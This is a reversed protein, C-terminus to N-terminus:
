DDNEMQSKLAAFPRIRDGSDEEIAEPEHCVADDIHTAALPMAMVLAETVLDMPRFQDQEVEWVEYGADEVAAAQDGGFVLRLETVLPLQFPELCRQCVADVTVAVRGEVAPWLGTPHLGGHAAAFGFALQGYVTANRWDSPLKDPDLAELDSEVIAALQEFDGIKESFEILQGRAALESPTRRDRLPNGM